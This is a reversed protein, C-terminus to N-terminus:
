EATADWAKIIAILEPHREPDPTALNNSVEADRAPGTATSMFAVPPYSSGIEVKMDGEWGVARIAAVVAGWDTTDVEVSLTPKERNKHLAVDTWPIGSDILSRYQRARETFEGGNSRLWFSTTQGPERDRSFIIEWELDRHQSALSEIASLSDLGTQIEITGIRSDAMISSNPDLTTLTRAAARLDLEGTVTVKVEGSGHPSTSTLQVNHRALVDRSPATPIEPTEVEIELPRDGREVTVVWPTQDGFASLVAESRTRQDNVQSAESISKSKLTVARQTPLACEVTLWPTHDGMLDPVNLRSLEAWPDCTRLAVRTGDGVSVRGDPWTQHLLTFMAWLAKTVHKEPRATFSLRPGEGAPRIVTLYSGSARRPWAAALEAMDDITAEPVLTAKVYWNTRALFYPGPVPDSTVSAVVKKSRLWREQSELSSACASLMLAMVAGIAAIVRTWRYRTM